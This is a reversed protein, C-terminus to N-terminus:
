RWNAWLTELGKCICLGKRDWLLDYSGARIDLCHRHIEIAFSGIGLTMIHGGLHFRGAAGDLSKDGYPFM